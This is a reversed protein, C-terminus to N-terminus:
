FKRVCRVQPFSYSKSCIWYPTFGPETSVFVAGTADWESSSWYWTNPILGSIVNGHVIISDLEDASPLFWDTYGNLSLTDCMKAASPGNCAAVIATTNLDGEMFGLHQANIGILTSDCGWLQSGADFQAAIMGHMGTTDVYFVVGGGAIQGISFNVTGIKSWGQGNGMYLGSGFPGNSTVYILLGAVPRSPRNNYDMRPLLLGQHDSKVELMASSDPSSGDTNISVQASLLNSLVFMAIILFYKFIQSM